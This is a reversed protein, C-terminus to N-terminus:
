GTGGVYLTLAPQLSTLRDPRSKFLECIRKRFVIGNVVAVVALVTIVIAAVAGGGLGKSEENCVTNNTASCPKKVGTAECTECAFCIKCATGDGPCYHDKKCRCKTDKLPTCPEEEELNANEHDCSTCFDCFERSNAESNYTGKECLECKGDNPVTTCHEKVQQGAACRCCTRGEHEYTGDQCQQRKVRFLKQFSLRIEPKTSVSSASLNSFAFVCFLILGVSIKSFSSM